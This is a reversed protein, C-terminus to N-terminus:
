IVLKLIIRVSSGVRQLRFHPLNEKSPYRQYEFPESFQFGVDLSICIFVKNRKDIETQAAKMLVMFVPLRLLTKM